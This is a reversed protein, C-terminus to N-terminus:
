KIKDGFFVFSFQRLVLRLFQFHGLQAPSNSWRKGVRLWRRNKGRKPGTEAEKRGRKRGRQPRETAPGLRQRSLPGAVPSRVCSPSLSVWKPGVEAGVSLRRGVVSAQPGDSHMRKAQFCSREIIKSFLNPGNKWGTSFSVNPDRKPRTSFDSAKHLPRCSTTTAILDYDNKRQETHKNSASWQKNYAAQQV